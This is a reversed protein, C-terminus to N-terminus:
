KAILRSNVLSQLSRRETRPSLDIDREILFADVNDETVKKLGHKKARNVCPNVL